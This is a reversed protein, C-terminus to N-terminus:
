SPSNSVVSFPCVTNENLQICKTKKKPKNIKNYKKAIDLKQLKKKKKKKIQCVIFIFQFCANCNFNGGFVTLFIDAIM